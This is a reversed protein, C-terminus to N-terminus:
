VGVFERLWSSDLGRSRCCAALRDRTKGARDLGLYRAANRWLINEQHQPRINAASLQEMIRPVYNNYNKELAIM